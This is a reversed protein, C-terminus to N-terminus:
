WSQYLHWWGGFLHSFSDEGRHVPEGAAAFVHRLGERVVPHDDAVVIRINGTAPTEPEDGPLHPTGNQEVKM